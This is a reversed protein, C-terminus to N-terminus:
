ASPCFRVWFTTMVWGYCRIEFFFSDWLLTTEAAKNQSKKTCYTLKDFSVQM